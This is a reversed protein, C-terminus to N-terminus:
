RFNILYLSAQAILLFINVLIGTFLLIHTILKNNINSNVILINVFIIVLGLLPILYLQKDSGILNVGYDVNYHLIVQEQIIKQNVFIAILWNILNVFFAIFLYIKIYVFSFLSSISSFIKQKAIFLNNINKYINVM